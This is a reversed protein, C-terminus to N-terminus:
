KLMIRKYELDVFDDVAKQIEEPINRNNYTRATFEMQIRSFINAITILVYSRILRKVVIEPLEKLDIPEDYDGPLYGTAIYEDNSYVYYGPLGWNASVIRYTTKGTLMTGMEIFLNPFYSTESEAAYANIMM